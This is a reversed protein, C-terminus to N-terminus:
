KVKRIWLSGGTNKLFLPMNYELWASHFQGMYANFLEIKFVDNFMLFARLIYAENWARGERVWDLPYEFNSMIDHFHIYVGAELIPLVKHIIFNVDSATKSVHSSDIFLIDNPQLNRFVDMDIAYLDEEFIRLSKELKLQNSMSGKFAEICSINIDGNLEKLNTDLMLATSFGTGIEVVNKPKLYKLLGYLTLADAHGFMPNNYFYRLGDIPEDDFPADNIFPKLRLLFEIHDQVEINVGFIGETLHFVSERREQIAIVDPIPSYAHGPPVWHKIKRKKNERM